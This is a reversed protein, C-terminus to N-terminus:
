IAAVTNKFIITERYCNSNGGGGLLILFGKDLLFNNQNGWGPNGPSDVVGLQLIQM